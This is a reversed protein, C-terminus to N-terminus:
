RRALQADFRTDGNVPVSRDVTEYGEKIVAVQRSGNALGHIAYSGSADTTGSQWGTGEENLRYVAADTLPVPGSSTQETVVGYLTFTGPVFVETARVILAGGAIELDVVTGPNDHGYDATLYARREGNKTGFRVALWCQCSSAEALIFSGRVPYGPLHEGGAVWILEDTTSVQIIQEQADHLDATSLGSFPDVFARLGSPAAPLPPSAPQAGSSPATPVGSRSGDCAAVGQVGAILVLLAAKKWM